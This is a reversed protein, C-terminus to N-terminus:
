TNFLFYVLRSFTAFNLFYPFFNSKTTSRTRRLQVTDESDYSVAVEKKEYEDKLKKVKYDENEQVESVFQFPFM